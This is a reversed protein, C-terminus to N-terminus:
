EALASLLPVIKQMTEADLSEQLTQELRKVTGQRELYEKVLGLKTEYEELLHIARQLNDHVAQRSVGLDEAIEALSRDNEYHEEMTYRQRETLLPGYFDLLLSKIYMEEM